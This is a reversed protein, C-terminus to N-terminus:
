TGPKPRGKIIDDYEKLAELIKSKNPGGWSRQVAEIIKRAQEVHAQANKQNEPDIADLRYDARNRSVQLSGLSSSAVKLDGDRSNELYDVAKSHAEGTKPLRFGCSNLKDIVVHHAAYYARSTASRVKAAESPYENALYKALQLFKQADM